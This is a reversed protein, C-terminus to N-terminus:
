RRGIMAIMTLIYLQFQMSLTIYLPAFGQVRKAVHQVRQM